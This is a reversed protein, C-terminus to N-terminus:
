DARRIGGLGGMSALQYRKGNPFVAEAFGLDRLVDVHRPTPVQMERFGLRGGKAASMIHALEGESRFVTVHSAGLPGGSRIEYGFTDSLDLTCGHLSVPFDLGSLPDPATAVLSMDSWREEEPVGRKDMQEQWLLFVRLAVGLDFTHRVGSLEVGEPQEEFLPLLFREFLLGLREDLSTDDPRVFDSLRIAIMNVGYVVDFLESPIGQETYEREEKERLNSFLGLSTEEITPNWDEWLGAVYGLGVLRFIDENESGTVSYAVVGTLSEEEDTSVFDDLFSGFAEVYREPSEEFQARRFGQDGVASLKVWTRTSQLGHTRVLRHQGDVPAVPAAM